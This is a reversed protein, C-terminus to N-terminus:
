PRRAIVIVRTERGVTLARAERRTTIRRDERAVSFTHLALPDFTTVPGQSFLLLLM